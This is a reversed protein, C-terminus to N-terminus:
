FANLHPSPPALLTLSSGSLEGVSIQGMFSNHRLRFLGSDVGKIILQFIERNKKKKFFFNLYINIYTM